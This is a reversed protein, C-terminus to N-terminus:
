ARLATIAVRTTLALRIATTPVLLGTVTVSGDSNRTAAGSQGDSTAYTIRAGSAPRFAQTNRITVDCTAAGSLSILSISYGGAADSIASGGTIGHRSSHWDLNRNRQGANGPDGTANHPNTITGIADSNTSNGFAPYSEDSRFRAINWGDASVGFFPFTGDIYFAGHNGDRWRAAYCAKASELAPLGAMYPYPAVTGDDKNFTYVIPPMPYGNDAMWKQNQWNEWTISGLGYVTKGTTTGPNSGSYATSDFWGISCNGAAFFTPNHAACHMAGSGLSSGDVYMRTSDISFTPNDRVYTCYRIYRNETCPVVQDLSPSYRGWHGSHGYTPANTAYPDNDPASLGTFGNDRPNVSVGYPDSSSSGGNQVYGFGAAHLGLFLPLSTGTLPKLVAVHHGYYGWNATDWSAYDEWFFYLYETGNSTANTGPSKILVGGLDNYSRATEAVGSALSNVGSTVTTLDDSNVVAYFATQSVAPTHVFLFQTSTLRVSGIADVSEGASGPVYFGGSLRQAADPYGSDNYLYQWSNADVTALLTASGINGSTIASTSRYIKYTSGSTAGAHKTGTVFTQGGRYVAALSTIAAM